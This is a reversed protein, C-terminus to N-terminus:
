CAGGFEFRILRWRGSRWAWDFVDGGGERSTSISVKRQSAHVSVYFSYPDSWFTLTESAQARLRQALGRQAPFRAGLRRVKEVIPLDGGCWLHAMANVLDSAQFVGEDRLAREVLQRGQDSCLKIDDVATSGVGVSVVSAEVDQAHATLFSSALYALITAGGVAISNLFISRSM